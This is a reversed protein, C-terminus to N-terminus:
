HKLAKNRRKLARAKAKLTKIDKAMNNMRENKESETLKGFNVKSGSAV